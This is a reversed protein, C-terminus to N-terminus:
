VTGYTTFGTPTQTPTTTTVATPPAVYLYTASGKPGGASSMTNQPGFSAAYTKPLGLSQPIVFTNVFPNNNSPISTASGTGSVASYMNVKQTLSQIQSQPNTVQGGGSSSSSNTTPSSTSSPTSTTTPTTITPATTPAQALVALPNLVIILGVGLVKMLKNTRTM